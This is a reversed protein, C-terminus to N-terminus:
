HKTSERATYFHTHKGRQSNNINHGGGSKRVLMRDLRLRRLLYIRMSQKKKIFTMQGEIGEEMDEGNRGFLLSLAKNVEESDKNYWKYITVIRKIFYAEGKENEETTKDLWKPRPNRKDGYLDVLHSCLWPTVVEFPIYTPHVSEVWAYWIEDDKTKMFTKRITPNEIWDKVHEKRRKPRWLLNKEFTSDMNTFFFILAIFAGLVTVLYITMGSTLDLYHNDGLQSSKLTNSNEM